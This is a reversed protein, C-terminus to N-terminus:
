WSICQNIFLNCGDISSEVNITDEISVDVNISIDLLEERSYNAAM